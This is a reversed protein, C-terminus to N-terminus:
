LRDNVNAVWVRVYGGSVQTVESFNGWIEDGPLSDIGANAYVGGVAHDAGRTEQARINAGGFCKICKVVTGAAPIFPSGVVLVAPTMGDLYIM